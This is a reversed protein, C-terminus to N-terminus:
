WSAISFREGLDRNEILYHKLAKAKDAVEKDNKSLAADIIWDYSESVPIDYTFHFKSVAFIIDKFTQRNLMKAISAVIENKEISSIEERKLYTPKVDEEYRASENFIDRPDFEGRFVFDLCIAMRSKNSFNIAAHDIAADLFWVEGKRMQFVGGEDSHYSESNNELMMFVRFYRETGGKMEVFDRHPIVMGDILNRARVMILPELSFNDEIIKNIMQCKKLHPTPIATKCNRFQTDHANGSANLLSINKWYGQAFEDYEEHIKPLNNLYEIESSLNLADLNIKAVIFSM